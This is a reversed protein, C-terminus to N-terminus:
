RQEKGKLRKFAGLIVQAVAERKRKKETSSLPEYNVKVKYGKVRKEKTSEKATEEELFFLLEEPEFFMIKELDSDSLKEKAFVRIKELSRKDQSVMVVKDYGAKLCKEINACEHEPSTTVSIECAIKKGGKLLGVDVRGEPIPEEITAKYGKEEAM